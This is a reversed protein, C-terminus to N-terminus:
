LGITYPSGSTGLGGTIKITDKLRIVPRFGYSYGFTSTSGASNIGCMTNNLLGGDKIACISVLIQSESYIDVYRSALWYYSSFTTDSIKTIGLSDMQDKDKKNKSNDTGRTYNKDSDKVIKSKAIENYNDPYQYFESENLPKEPDSGICRARDALNTLYTQASKHLNTIANNYSWRSKEFSTTGYGQQALEDNSPLELDSHGLIVEKLPNKSVIIM